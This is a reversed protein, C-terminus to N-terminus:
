KHSFALGRRRLRRRTFYWCIGMVIFPTAAVLISMYGALSGRSEIIMQPSQILGFAMKMTRKPHQEAYNVLQQSSEDGKIMFNMMKRPHQQFFLFVQLKAPDTIVFRRKKFEIMGKKRLVNLQRTATERALGTSNAIDLHTIPADIMIGGQDTEKGFRRAFARLQAMIKESATRKTLSDVSLEYMDVMDMLKQLVYSAAAPDREILAEFDEKKLLRVRTQEICEFYAERPRTKLLLRIPFLDGERFIANLQEEGSVSITYDKVFGKEILYAGQAPEDPGILIQGKHYERVPASLFAAQFQDKGHQIEEVTKM